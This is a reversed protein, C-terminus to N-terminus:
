RHLRSGTIVSASNGSTSIILVASLASLNLDPHIFAASCSPFGFLGVNYLHIRTMTTLQDFGRYRDLWSTIVFLSDRSKPFCRKDSLFCLFFEPTTENKREFRGEYLDEKHAAVRSELLVNIFEGVYKVMQPCPFYLDRIEFFHREEQFQSLTSGYVALM